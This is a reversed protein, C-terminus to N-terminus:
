ELEELYVVEDKCFVVIWKKLNKEKEIDVLEQSKTYKRIQGRAEEIEKNLAEESYNEKKIYKVEFIANYKTKAGIRPLLAIDVYGGGLEDESKVYYIKSMMLYTVMIVKVYKEDFKIFDRNSLKNLTTQVIELYEKIEGKQAIKIIANKLKGIDLDYDAEEKIIKGFFDFYMEKIVYNPVQLNVMNIISDKITLFGLYFLLSKFDESTFEKALSYEATITVNEQENGEIIEQLITMNRERNKLTFLNSIKNYDSSINPDILVKPRNGLTQYESAYYLVMDSNFIRNKADENFLYGNYYRKLLPMEKKIDIDEGITEKLIYEVEEETFGLCENLKIHRAKNKAINFGSTMSDLTIPSVGTMYIRQVLGNETGIKLVEYWKRVFGTRSITEEFTDVQYSLLENAFHDYEDIIVYIQGNIKQKAETLFEKFIESPMGSVNYNTKIQYKIEFNKIGDIVNKTFGTLLSEKTNTNIGSFNFKLVYYSNKKNTSKKSIYTDKFLEDFEDKYRVDYYYELVSTFLSKGFRRPRLFVVYPEGSEELIEIYRTKDVYIYNEEVITKYDSIGYPIKKM